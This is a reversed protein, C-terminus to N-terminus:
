WLGHVPGVLFYTVLGLTNNFGHTLVAAWLTRYHLRVASFLVADVTTLVVGVTGQETHALGFVLSSVLVATALGVAGPPLLERLRTQLL